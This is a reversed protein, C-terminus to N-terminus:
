LGYDAGLGFFVQGFGIGVDLRAVFDHSPKFRLGTQVALWPFLIPKSGGNAWSPEQYGPYHQPKDGLTPDPACYSAQPESAGPAPPGQCYAWGSGEPYAQTRYLPGWVIGLGAGGGYLLALEPSFPHSWVFDTALYIVKLHADVLETAEVPDSPAKFTTNTMVYSTYTISFNYEFNDRRIAFEPGFNPAFVTKGGDGFLGIVFSPILIARFRAGVFYYTKGPEEVASSAASAEAAPAEAPAEKKASDDAAAEDAPKEDEPPKEDDSGKTSSSSADEDLKVDEAPPPEAKKKKAEASGTLTLAALALAFSSLRLTKKILM